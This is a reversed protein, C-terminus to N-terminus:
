GPAVSGAGSIEKDVEGPEGWYRVSGAGSVEVSLSDAAFVEASGAGSLDLEVAKAELGRAEIESAGSVEVEFREVAGSLRLEAAGSVELVFLEGQLGEIDVDAAGSIELADLYPVWIEVKLPLSPRIMMAELSVELTGDEVAMVVKPVINDDGSLVVRQDHDEDVHVVLEFSGGLALAQFGDVERTETRPDGSGRLGCGALTLALLAAGLGAGFRVGRHPPASSPFVPSPTSPLHTM